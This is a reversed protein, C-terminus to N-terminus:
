DVVKDLIRRLLFEAMGAEDKDKLEEYWKDCLENLAVDFEEVNDVLLTHTKRAVAITMVAENIAMFEEENMFVNSM